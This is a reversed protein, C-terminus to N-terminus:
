TLTLHNSAAVFQAAMATPDTTIFDNTSVVNPKTLFMKLTLSHTPQDNRKNIRWAVNLWRNNYIVAVPEKESSESDKSMITEEITVSFRTLKKKKKKIM